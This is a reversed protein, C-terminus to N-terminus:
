FARTKVPAKKDGISKDWMSAWMFILITHFVILLRLVHEAIRNKKRLM